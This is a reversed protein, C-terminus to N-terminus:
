LEGFGVGWEFAMNLRKDLVEIDACLPLRLTWFCTSAVPLQGCGEQCSKCTACLCKMVKIKDPPNAESNNMTGDPQLNSVGTTFSLFTSLQEQPWRLLLKRVFAPVESGRFDEEAFHIHELIKEPCLKDPGCVITQLLEPRLSCARDCLSPISRFGKCMAEMADHRSGLLVHNVMAPAFEDRNEMTVDEESGPFSLCMAEVMDASEEQMIFSVSGFVTPDYEHLQDLSL